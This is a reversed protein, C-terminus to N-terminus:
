SRRAYTIALRLMVVGLWVATAVGLVTLCYARYSALEQLLPYREPTYDSAHHLPIRVSYDVLWLNLWAGGPLGLASAQVLLTAFQHHLRWHGIWGVLTLLMVAGLLVPYLVLQWNLADFLSYVYATYREALVIHMFALSLCGGSLIALLLGNLFFGTAIRRSFHRRASWDTSDGFHNMANTAM